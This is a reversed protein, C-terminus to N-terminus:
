PAAESEKKNDAGCNVVCNMIVWYNNTLTVHLDQERFTICVLATYDKKTETFSEMRALNEPDQDFPNCFAL